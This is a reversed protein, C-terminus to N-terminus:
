HTMCGVAVDCRHMQLVVDLDQLALQHRQTGLDIGDERLQRALLDARRRDFPNGCELRSRFRRLWARRRRRLVLDRGLRAKRAFCRTLEYAGHRRKDDGQVLRARNGHRRLGRM